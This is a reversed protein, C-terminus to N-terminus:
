SELIVELLQKFSKKYNLTECRVGMSELKARGRETSLYKSATNKPNLPSQNGRLSRRAKIRGLCVDLPTDLFLVICDKKRQAMSEGIAGVCSSILAGEFIVHGQKAYKEVRPWILAYPQIADCGGCATLYPGILFLPKRLEPIAIVHAAPRKCGKEYVPRGKYREILQQALTSKGSGHTGRVNIIM